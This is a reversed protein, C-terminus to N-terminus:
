CSITLTFDELQNRFNLICSLGAKKEPNTQSNTNPDFADKATIVFKALCSDRDFDEMTKKTKKESKGKKTEKDKKGHPEFHM